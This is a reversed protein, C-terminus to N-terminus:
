FELIDTFIKSGMEKLIKEMIKKLSDEYDYMVLVEGIVKAVARVVDTQM